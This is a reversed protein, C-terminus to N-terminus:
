DLRWLTIDRWAGIRKWAGPLRAAFDAEEFPWLLAHLELGRARVAARLVRFRAPQLADWRAIPRNTYYKLAGSMQMAVMVSRSSVIGDAWLSADRYVAEGTKLGFLDFRRIRLIGAAALAVLLALGIGTRWRLLGPPRGRNRLLEPVDRALLLAALIIAPLGPLLFRTSWWDEYPQYFCYFGFFAGFWLLLLGRDRLAVRRDFPLAIWALPLLPTLLAPIWYGYHRIEPVFNGISMTWDLMSGYGTTTASGFALRNYLILFAALPMAGALARVAAKRGPPLALALAFLALANTPRVLVAVGLAAGAAFARKVDRRARLGLFVAALVWTTALADSMPQIAMGFFIPCVALLAAGSAALVRSLGLERGCLYLLVLAAVAALPSALFPARGWGALAGAAAMHLPLGPPYLPAMTGPQAGPRYGLPIFIDQDSAPLGLRSLAQIEESVKGRAFLRAANLYGSSDAGGATHSNAALLLAGYLALLIAACARAYNSM